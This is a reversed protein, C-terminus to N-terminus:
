GGAATPNPAGDAGGRRLAERLGVARDALDELDLPRGSEDLAWAGRPDLLVIGAARKVAGAFVRGESCGVAVRWQELPVITLGALRLPTGARLEALTRREM